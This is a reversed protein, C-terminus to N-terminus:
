HMNTFAATTYIHKLMPRPLKQKEAFPLLMRAIRHATKTRQKVMERRNLHSTLYTRLHKMKNALKTTTDGINYDQDGNLIIKNDPDTIVITSKRNNVQLGVNLLLPKFDDLLNRLDEEKKSIAVGTSNRRSRAPIKPSVMSFLTFLKPSLPCEQRVGRNRKKITIM